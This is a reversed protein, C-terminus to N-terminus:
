ALLEQIPGASPDGIPISRGAVDHDRTTDLGLAQFYTHFLHSGDVEGDVVETGKDNTKGAVIGSKIGCGGVVVSWATGWHDRGYRVNIKPTRGFESMVMVLTNELMGSQHLDDLLAAFTRDFEGLQELHFNFNEAHTDYGHHTVKVCTVGNELLKRAFICNRAFHHSGYRQLDKASADDQFLKRRAMLQLAQDFSANYVDTFAKQGRRAFRDNFQLRLQNRRRDGEESVSDPRVINAPPAVGELRVQAHKPGLFADTNDTLGRTSIHIYNPLPSDHPALYKSAVAGVYPFEGARRGKELFLRGQQHNDSKINIGRVISLLHMRKATYPLLESIRIGPASTSISRFPGGHITRPKPDWSELQSVGGQLYIQLIRKQDRKVSAAQVSSLLSSFGLAGAVSGVVFGRRSVLHDVRNCGAYNQMADDKLKPLECHILYWRRM